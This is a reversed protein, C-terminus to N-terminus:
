RASTMIRDCVIGSLEKITSQGALVIIREPFRKALSLYGHRVKEFFERGSGELRDAAKGTEMLRQAATEVDIDFVFTLSPKIGNTAFSNIRELDDLSLGRGFGQYAFTAEEFRDCLVIVGKKIAPAIIEQVHQARAACYLLVECPNCMKNNEPSLLLERIKESIGTGGPERTVVCDLGNKELTEAALKLQTSKGCGDIGEFTVFLGKKMLVNWPVKQIKKRKRVLV